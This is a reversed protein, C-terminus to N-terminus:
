RRDNMVFVGFRRVRVLSSGTLLAFRADGSETLEYARRVGDRRVGRREHVVDRTSVFRRTSLVGDLRLRLTQLERRHHVGDTRKPALECPADGDHRRRRVRHRRLAGGDRAVVDVTRAAQKVIRSGRVDRAVPFERVRSWRSHRKVRLRVVKGAKRLLRARRPLSRAHHVDHVVDRGSRVPQFPQVLQRRFNAREHHALRLRVLVLGRRTTLRRRFGAIRGGRPLWRLLGRLAPARTALRLRM